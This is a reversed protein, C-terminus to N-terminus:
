DHSLLLTCGIAIAAILLWLGGGVQDCEEMTLDQLAEGGQSAFGDDTTM